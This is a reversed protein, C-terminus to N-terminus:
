NKLIKSLLFDTILIDIVKDGIKNLADEGSSATLVEVPRDFKSLVRALMNATNPHDDVILIRTKEDDM